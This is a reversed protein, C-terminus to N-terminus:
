KVSIEDFNFSGDPMVYMGQLRKSRAYVIKEQVLFIWPADAWVQKQADAYLAAKKTRDTTELAKALDDDVLGNKYYATNYLKPPLSASALLPSLAWNAEGTSASWGSYYMRVPATAPDQASEVKAVREGAELAQVQVKVGVQALQQQVFQILKQATTHNYASWLTSEFGNPYGAEKLLARAKAPDYPWPGLKTAFEVGAPAVGTQPTAYGAFVVKALAEKNVAYNLAERVKPNDFPKKQTNLSIYRQIISPREILDVKPNSKLDATQEFPITFAFDAEGTKILAARTNNDVVPKWDITDVKPYGKKWYGAFKKVKMDDTQKWEVFEFPGTGVPHLSVDRGWKKLAAPSIMVASPHALTNIFASFPERLTFKVTLPDVVETKEIVRFLGYRKLKSAPDTVRDFNAKVAAANFDTGDHFKVGGRLKVTYVKADPSAQYGTALVNVLKMDKDFGFLGEYFSKVAAQSVTDNADYPDMTTFTSYVAVVVNQQAFAPLAASLAFAGASAVVLARPRFTPFSLPKNM